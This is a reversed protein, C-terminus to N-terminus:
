VRMIEKIRVIVEGPSTEFFLAGKKAYPEFLKGIDFNLLIVPKRCKLALAIESITGTGGDCAVV